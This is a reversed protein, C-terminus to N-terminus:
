GPTWEATRQIKRAAIASPCDQIPPHKCNSDNGSVTEEPSGHLTKTLHGIIFGCEECRIPKTEPM